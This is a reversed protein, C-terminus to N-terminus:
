APPLWLGEIPSVGNKYFVEASLASLPDNTKLYAQAVTLWFDNQNRVASEFNVFQGGQMGLAKGGLILAPTPSRSHTTEAVETVCPIVTHDLLSNGFSDTTNKFDLVIDAIKQMYWTHVNALFEVIGAASGGPLSDMVDAKSGIKHSLPHHMFIANPDDPQLGKFSVHNTGPSWQLTAVRIIDCQFAAKIIGAHLKGIVEHEEDDASSVEESGYPNSSGTEGTLSPDPPEPVVCSPDVVMGSELQGSIQMEIARIAQAHLEIKSAESGPALTKLEALESLSYDLVSKRARLARLLAEQNEPTSGGPMFGAFLNMYAQVPSLTPLLPVHETIMGGAVPRESVISRTSYGYSLCQASTELSDVRADCIANAYGIGPRQLDPVNQLLIQDWSPGGAVGDDAEGGNRRTGPCNAGTTTMPTGSEHGGGQGDDVDTLSLGYLISLDDKLGATEFPKLIPSFTFNTGAGTPLFRYRVTGVPWHIMLFRPPSTAGQAAAEMNRLLIKLGIAGGIGALFSRRAFRYSRM